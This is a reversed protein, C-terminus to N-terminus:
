WNNPEDQKMVTGDLVLTDGFEIYAYFYAKKRGNLTAFVERMSAEMMGTYLHHGDSKTIYMVDGRDDVRVIFQTRMIGDIIVKM